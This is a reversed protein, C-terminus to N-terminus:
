QEIVYVEVRESVIWAWLEMCGASNGDGIADDLSGRCIVEFCEVVLVPWHNTYSGGLEAIRVGLCPLVNM